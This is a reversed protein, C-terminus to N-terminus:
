SEGSVPSNMKLWPVLLLSGAFTMAMDVYTDANFGDMMCFLDGSVLGATWETLEWLAALGLSILVAMGRFLWNARLISSVALVDRVLLVFVIGDIFHVIWDVYGRETGDPLTLRFIPIRHYLFHAGVLLLLGQVFLACSAPVSPLFRKRVTFLILAAAAPTVCQFFWAIRNSPQIGSGALALWFLLFLVTRLRGVSGAPRTSIDNM